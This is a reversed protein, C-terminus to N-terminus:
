MFVALLLIYFIITVLIDIYEPDLGSYRIVFMAMVLQFINGVLIALAITGLVNSLPFVIVFLMIVPWRLLVDLVGYYSTTEKYTLQLFLGLLAMISGYFLSTYLTVLAISINMMEYQVRLFSRGLSGSLNCWQLFVRFLINLLFLSAVIFLSTNVLGLLGFIFIICLLFFLQLKLVKPLSM